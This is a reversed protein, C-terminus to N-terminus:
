SQATQGRVSLHQAWMRCAEAPVAKCVVSLNAYQFPVHGHHLPKYLQQPARCSANLATHFVLECLLSDSLTCSGDFHSLGPTVTVSVPQQVPATPPAATQTCHLPSLICRPSQGRLPHTQFPGAPPLLQGHGLPGQWLRVRQRLVVSYHFPPEQGESDADCSNCTYAQM